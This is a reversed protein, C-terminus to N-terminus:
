KQALASLREYIWNMTEPTGGNTRVQDYVGRIAVPVDIDHHSSLVVDLLADIGCIGIYLGMGAYENKVQEFYTRVQTSLSGFRGSIFLLSRLGGAKATEAARRVDDVTFTKDKLETALFPVGNRELDLDSNQGHSAGSQNVPHPIVKFGAEAPYQIRYLASAVLLLADGGFGMNLLSSLFDRLESASSLGAAAEAVKRGEEDRAKKLALLRTMIFDLCLRALEADSVKPLWDVLANLAKRGDGRAKNDKSLRLYRAPKNVLPDNNAGDIVDGLQKQQFPYVVQSCLTRPAYAGDSADDSQLSLIDIEPATAKATLATLLIYKYTTCDKGNFVANVAPVIPCDLVPREQVRQLSDALEQFAALHDVKVFM